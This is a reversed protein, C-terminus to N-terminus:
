VQVFLILITCMLLYGTEKHWDILVTIDPHIICLYFQHFHLIYCQLYFFVVTFLVDDLLSSSNVTKKGGVTGLIKMLWILFWHQAYMNM